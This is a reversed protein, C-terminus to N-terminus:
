AASPKANTMPSETLVRNGGQSKARSMVENARQLMSRDYPGAAEAIGFSATLCISEDVLLPSVGEPKVRAAALAERVKEAFRAADAARTQPTIIAFEDGQLRCAVNEPPCVETIVKGIKQLVQDGVRNGHIRNIEKFHDVNMSVISIPNEFRVRLAIEAELRETFMARNGLGTLPDVMATAGLMHIVRSTRLSARVRAILEARSFPKTVYDVAGLGFAHVKEKVLAHSTLFIIPCVATTLDAKLRQCVEFGDMGPMDVDLLILDPRTSAALILGSQPDTASHIDVPEDALIAKILPHITKSDDIVLIQQNM